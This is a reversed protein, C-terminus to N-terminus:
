RDPKILSGATLTGNKFRWANGFGKVYEALRPQLHFAEFDPLQALQTAIAGFKSTMKDTLEQFFHSHRPHHTVRCQYSLRRRAFINKARSEEEIFLFAAVPQKLMNHTHTALRSTLIGFSEDDFLVYPAYSASPCSANDITALQLSQFSARFQKAEDALNTNKTTVSSSNDLNNVPAESM